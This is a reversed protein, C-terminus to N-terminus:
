LIYAVDVEDPLAFREETRAPRAVFFEVLMGDPDRLVISRKGPAWIEGTIDVGAATLRAKSDRLEDLNALELGFHHLGVADPRQVLGVHPLGVTGGLVAVAAAADHHVVQLGLLGTYFGLARDLDAVCFVARSTRNPRIHGTGPAVLPDVEYHPRDDPVEAGPTWDSTLLENDARRYTERWDEASDAYFELYNGDLDHLYVSRSIQHDVTRTHLGTATAARYARVLAAETEMEFGLHNLGATNGVTRPIQVQGARGIRDSTMTQMLALDHHSGGNGLFVAGIGPEDFVPQLGCVDRYFALSAAQDDVWLNVHALRRPAFAPEHPTM